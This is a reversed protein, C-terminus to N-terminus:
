QKTEEKAVIEEAKRRNKERIDRKARECLGFRSSTKYDEKNLARFIKEIKAERPDKLDKYHKPHHWEFSM